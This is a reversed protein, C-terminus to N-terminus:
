RLRVDPRGVLGSNSTWSAAIDALRRGETPHVYDPDLEALPVAVFPRKVIDPDPVRHGAWEFVDRNFLSLDVDITRPANKNLPDRVRGLQREIAAIAQQYIEAPSLQTELLVAGNLFNAGSSGLPASEWVSSVAMVRGFATLARVAAPLNQEPEINSGLSLYARNAPLESM